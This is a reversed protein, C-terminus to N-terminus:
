WPNMFFRLKNKLNLDNASKVFHVSQVLYVGSNIFGVSGVGGTTGIIKDNQDITLAGYRAVNDIKRTIIVGDANNLTIIVEKTIWLTNLRM